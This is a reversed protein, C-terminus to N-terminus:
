VAIGMSSCRAIAATIRVASHASEVPPSRRSARRTTLKTREVGSRTSSEVCDPEEPALEEPGIEGVRPSVGYSGLGRRESDAGNITQVQRWRETNRRSAQERGEDPLNEYKPHWQHLYFAAEADLTRRDLGLKLLRRLLDADERGWVEFFEDYGRILHHFASYTMTISPHYAWDLRPTSANRWRALRLPGGSEGISQLEATTDEPLDLM